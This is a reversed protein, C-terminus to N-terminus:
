EWVEDTKKLEVTLNGLLTKRKANECPLHIMRQDVTKTEFARSEYTSFHNRWQYHQPQNIQPEICLAAVSKGKLRQLVITGKTKAHWKQRKM